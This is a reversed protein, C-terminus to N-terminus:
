SSLFETTVKRPPSLGAELLYTVPVGSTLFNWSVSNVPPKPNVQGWLPTLRTGEWGLCGELNRVPLGLDLRPM